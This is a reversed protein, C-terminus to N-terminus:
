MSFNLVLNVEIWFPLIFGFGLSGSISHGRGLDAYIPWLQHQHCVQPTTGRNKWTHPTELMLTTQHNFRILGLLENESYSFSLVHFFMKLFFDSCSVVKWKRCRSKCGRGLRGMEMLCGWTKRSALATSCLLELATM